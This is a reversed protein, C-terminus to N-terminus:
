KSTATNTINKKAAKIKQQLRLFKANQINQSANNQSETQVKERQKNQDLSMMYNLDKYQLVTQPHKKNIDDLMKQTQKVKDKIEQLKEGVEEDVKSIDISEPVYERINGHNKEKINTPIVTSELQQKEEDSNLIYMQYGLFLILCLIIVQYITKKM